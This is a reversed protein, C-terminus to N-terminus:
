AQVREHSAGVWEGGLECVLQPNEKFSFSLVRGGLRDRAELVTVRWGARRLAYGAALGSLGAGIIICSSPSRGTRNGSLLPAGLAAAGAYKLFERRTPRKEPKLQEAYNKM